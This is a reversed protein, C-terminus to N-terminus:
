SMTYYENKGAQKKGGKGAKTGKAGKAGKRGKSPTGGKKPTGKGGKKAPTQNCNM